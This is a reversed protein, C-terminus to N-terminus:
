NIADLLIFAAWYKPDSWEPTKRITLKAAELADHKTMKKAIWNAYFETMLKCTAKDDVKWLSMLISNAGAKKFGRQLGFVGEGKIDGKATECASLTILDLGVLNMTSIELSTLIGDEIGDPITEGMLFNDAGAFLLGSRMLSKDEETRQQQDSNMNDGYIAKSDAENMYFGHTAIHIVNRGKGNISKFSAETGKDQLFLEVPLSSDKMTNSIQEAEIETGPLYPTNSMAERNGRDKYFRALDANASARLEPYLQSNNKMDDMSMDYHLGGYVICGTGEITNKYTLERTSSLRHIDYIDSMYKNSNNYFPLSEIPIENLVGTPSIYLNKKNHILEHLPKWILTSAKANQLSSTNWDLSDSNCLRIMYPVACDSTLVCAYLDKDKSSTFEIAVDNEKLASKVDKWSAYLRTRIDGFMRSSSFLEDELKKRQEALIKLDEGSAKDMQGMIEMLNKAKAILTRHGSKRIMSMVTNYSRLQIGKCLLAIDYAYMKLSDSQLSSAFRSSKDMLNEISYDWVLNHKINFNFSELDDRIVNLALDQIIDTRENMTNLIEMLEEQIMTKTAGASIANFGCFVLVDHDYLGSLLKQCSGMDSEDTKLYSIAKQKAEEYRGSRMLGRIYKLTFDGYEETGKLSANSEFLSDLKAAQIMCDAMKDYSQNLIEHKFFLINTKTNVNDTLGYAQDYYDSAKNLYEQGKNRLYNAKAIIYLIKEKDDFLHPNAEVFNDTVNEFNENSVNYQLIFLTEFFLYRCDKPALEKLRPYLEEKYYDLIKQEQNNDHWYEVLSYIRNHIENTNVPSNQLIANIYMRSYKLWNDYDAMDQCEQALEELTEDDLDERLSLLRVAEEHNDIYRNYEILANLYKGELRGQYIEKYFNVCDQHAQIGKKDRKEYMLTRFQLFLTSDLVEIMNRKDLHSKWDNTPQDIRNYLDRWQALYADMVEQAEIHNRQARLEQAYERVLRIYYAEALYDPILRVMEIKIKKLDTKFERLLYKVSDTVVANTYNSLFSLREDIDNVHKALTHIAKPEIVNTIYSQKISQFTEKAANYDKSLLQAICLYMRLNQRSTMDEAPVGARYFKEELQRLLSIVNAYKECTLEVTAKCIMFLAYYPSENDIFKDLSENEIKEFYEIAKDYNNLKTYLGFRLCMATAYMSKGFETDITKSLKEIENIIDLSKKEDSEEMTCLCYNVLKSFYEEVDAHDCLSLRAYAIKTKVNTHATQSLLDGVNDLIGKHTDKDNKLCVRLIDLYRDVYKELEEGDYMYVMFRLGAYDVMMSTKELKNYKIIDDAIELYHLAKDTDLVAPHMSLNVIDGLTSLLLTDNKEYSVTEIKHIKEYYFLASDIKNTNIYVAAIGHYTGVHFLDLSDCLQREMAYLEYLDSLAQQYKGAHFDSLIKNNFGDIALTKRRDQPKVRYWQEDIARAREKDGAMYLSHALWLKGYDQRSNNPDMQMSDLEHVKAFLAAAKRFESKDYLDMAQAYLEDSEQSQAYLGVTHITVLLLFFLKKM